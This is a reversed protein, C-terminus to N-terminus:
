CAICMQVPAFLLRSDVFCYTLLLRWLFKCTLPFAGWVTSGKIQGHWWGDTKPYSELDMETVEIISGAKFSINRGNSNSGDFDYMAIATCVVKANRDADDAVAQIETSDKEEPQLAKAEEVLAEELKDSVGKLGKVDTNDEEEEEGDSVAMNYSSQGTPKATKINKGSRGGGRRGGRKQVSTPGPDTPTKPQVITQPRKALKANYVATSSLDPRFTPRQRNNYKKQRQVMM